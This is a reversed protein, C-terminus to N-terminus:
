NLQNQLTEYNKASDSIDGQAPSFPNKEKNDVMTKKLSASM